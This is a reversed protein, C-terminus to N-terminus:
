LHGNIRFLLQERLDYTQLREPECIKLLGIFIKCFEIIKISENSGPDIM